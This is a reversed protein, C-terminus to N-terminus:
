VVSFFALFTRLNLTTYLHLTVAYTPPTYSSRHPFRFSMGVTKSLYRTWMPSDRVVGSYLGYPCQVHRSFIYLFCLMVCTFYINIYIYIYIYVYIYIYIYLLILRAAVVIVLIDVIRDM